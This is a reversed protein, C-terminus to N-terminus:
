ELTDYKKNEAHKEAVIKEKRADAAAEQAASLKRTAAYQEAAADSRSFLLQSEEKYEPILVFFYWALPLISSGVSSGIVPALIELTKDFNMKLLMQQKM